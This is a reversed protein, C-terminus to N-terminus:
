VHGVGEALLKEAEKLRRVFPSVKYNGQKLYYILWGALILAERNKQVTAKTLLDDLVSLLHGKGASTERYLTSIRTLLEGFSTLSDPRSTEPAARDPRVEPGRKLILNRAPAAAQVRWKDIVDSVKQHVPSSSQPGPLRRSIEDLMGDIRSLDSARLRQNDLWPRREAVWEGVEDCVDQGSAASRALDDLRNMGSLIEIREAKVDVVRTLFSELVIELSKLTRYESL